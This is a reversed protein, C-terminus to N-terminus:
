ETEVRWARFMALSWLAYGHDERGSLHGRVLRAVRGADLLGEAQLAAPSLLDQMWERLPGRLWEALPIEFGQKPRDVLERPLYRYLLRRLPLKGRGSRYLAGAPFEWSLAVVGPDLLPVRVELGVSMSARDVKALINEPLYRVQDLFRLRSAADPLFDPARLSEPAMGGRLPPSLCFASRNLLFRDVDRAAMRMGLRRLRFGTGGPVLRGLAAATGGAVPRLGAPLRGLWRWLRLVDFYRQYGFFLEDGGDGSLAVTVQQRAIRCVLLTPLQSPDAFPEDYVRPMEPVIKLADEPALCYETHDTGLRSAVRRAYGAEDFRRERFGITFTRVPRAAAKQMLAVVLSSDIGGSLIAGLPVDAQMRMRVAQELRRELRAMREEPDSGSRGLAAEAVSELRWHASCGARFAEASRPRVGDEPTFATWCGAPLKYVGPHISLPAPVHGYRLLRELARPEVGGQWGPLTRLAKLESAFALRGGVWGVYLPKEGVPDRALYLKRERRCWAALGYMGNCRELAEPLGWRDIAALLVETDSRGRWGPHGEGELRRRLAEHNYLEGNFVLVWRGSASVMPQRGSPSLDLIALRRHGLGVGAAADWWFGEDDPGRHVLAGTMAGLLREPQTLPGPQLFGAIGCM